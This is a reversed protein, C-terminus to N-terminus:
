LERTIGLDQLIREQKQNMQREGEPDNVHDYGLLHLMSHATLFCVERRLSHGYEAAQRVATEMSIVIDGLVFLGSEPDYEYEGDGNGEADFEIMPFSLVDTPRDIGRERQNIARIGADDTLTLSIQANFDCEETELTHNCVRRIDALLSEPIETKNQENETLIETM